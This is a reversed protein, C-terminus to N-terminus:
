LYIFTITIAMDWVEFYGIMLLRISAQGLVSVSWSEAIGGDLDQPRVGLDSAPVPKPM